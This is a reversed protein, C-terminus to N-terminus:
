AIGHHDRKRVPALVAVHHRVHDGHQGRDLGEEQKEVVEDGIRELHQRRVFQDDRHRIAVPQARQQLVRGHRDM